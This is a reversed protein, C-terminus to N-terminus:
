SWQTLFENFHKKRMHTTAADMMIKHASTLYSIVLKIFLISQENSELDADPIDKLDIESLLIALVKNMDRVQRHKPSLISDQLGDFGELVNLAEHRVIGYVGLLVQAPPKTSLLNNFVNLAKFSQEIQEAILGECFSFGMGKERKKKSVIKFGPRTVDTTKM